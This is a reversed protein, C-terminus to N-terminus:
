CSMSFGVPKMNPRLKQPKVFMKVTLRDAREPREGENITYWSPTQLALQEKEIMDCSIAANRTAGKIHYGGIFM